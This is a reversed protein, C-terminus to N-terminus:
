SFALYGKWWYLFLGLYEHVIARIQSFQIRSEDGFFLSRPVPTLTAQLHPAVRRWVLQVRRMHYPSSVVLASHFGHQEMLATSFKVNEYTNAAQEELLISEAPVGLSVALARMVLAEKMAYVYGSSFILVPAFGRQYLEVAYTVREEYGQGAQGSEGVGGAFVVIADAAHPVESIRLPRALWWPAPTHFLVGYGLVTLWAATLIKRRSTKALTVLAQRWQKGKGSWKQELAQHILGSMAEVRREWSNAEAARVRELRHSGDREDLAEELAQSFGNADQGIRVLPGVQRNFAQIEPLDTSVIPKGLALYENLKTPYVHRTYETLRYPILGVDFAQVYNPLERHARQGILFINPLGRLMELNTQPPGVLVFSYHPRALAVARLLPQDIWQHLGGVYGILPRRLHTLEEPIPREQGPHFTQLDVGFPFLHVHSSVRACHDFLAQSTTFVLDSRRLLEVEAREIKRAATSSVSFRDICYYILLRHDIHALLDLTLRNPLFTWVVPSSFGVARMWRQLIWLLLRRNLWAALRSHPLPIVLPSFVFLNEREQRVGYVGRRWNRWRRRIRSLDKLQPARAGTNEMFLVRHGQAAYRSMVEQHGQWVFDWDISSICLIDYQHKM